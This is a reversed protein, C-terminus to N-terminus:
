DGRAILIGYAKEIWEIRRLRAFQRNKLCERSAEFIGRLQKLNVLVGGASKGVSIWLYVRALIAKAARV